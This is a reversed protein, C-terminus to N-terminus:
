NVEHRSHTTFRKHMRMHRAKRWSGTLCGNQSEIHLYHSALAVSFLVRCYYSVNKPSQVQFFEQSTKKKLMGPQNSAYNASVFIIKMIDWRFTSAKVNFKDWGHWFLSSSSINRNGAVVIKLHNRESCCGRSWVQALTEQQRTAACRFRLEEIWMFQCIVSSLADKVKANKWKLSHEYIEGHSIFHPYVCKLVFFLSKWPELSKETRKCNKVLQPNEKRSPNTRDPCRSQLVAARGAWWGVDADPAPRETAPAISVM